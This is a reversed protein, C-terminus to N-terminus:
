WAQGYFNSGRSGCQPLDVGALDESWWTHSMFANFIHFIDEECRPDCPYSVPEKLQPDWLGPPQHLWSSFDTMRVRSRQAGRGRKGNGRGWKPSWLGSARFNHLVSWIGERKQAPGERQSGTDMLGLYSKTVDKIVKMDCCQSHLLPYPFTIFVADLVASGLEEGDSPIQIRPLM